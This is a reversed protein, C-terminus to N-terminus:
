MRTRRLVVVRGRKASQHSAYEGAVRRLAGYRDRRAGVMGQRRAARGERQPVLMVHHLHVIGVHVKKEMGFGFM